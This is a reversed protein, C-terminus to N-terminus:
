LTPHGPPQHERRLRRHARSRPYDQAVSHAFRLHKAVPIHRVMFEVCMNDVLRELDDVRSDRLIAKYAIKKDRTTLAEVADELGRLALDSMERVKDRIRDIDGQLQLELHSSL